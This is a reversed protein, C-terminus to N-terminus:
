NLFKFQIKPFETSIVYEFIDKGFPELNVKIKKKRDRIDFVIEKKKVILFTDDSIQIIFLEKM